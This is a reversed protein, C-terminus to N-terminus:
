QTKEVLTKKAHTSSAESASEPPAQGSDRQSAQTPAVSLITKELPKSKPDNATKSIDTEMTKLPPGETILPVTITQVAANSDATAERYATEPDKAEPPATVYYIVMKDEKPKGPMRLVNVEASAVKEVFGFVPEIRYEDSNSCKIKFAIRKDGVNLINHKSRGGSTQFKSSLPDVTVLKQKRRRAKSETM